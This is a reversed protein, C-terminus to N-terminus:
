PHAKLLELYGGMVHVIDCMLSARGIKAHLLNAGIRVATNSVPGAPLSGLEAAEAIPL